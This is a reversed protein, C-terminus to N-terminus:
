RVTSSSEFVFVRAGLRVRAGPQLRRSRRPPLETWASEDPGSVYTGNRSGTDVVVVDWGSVRVEAHVRSVSGAPDEVVLPWLEGSRVRDDVEPMRGVLYGGDVVHAAGDDFMLLGLAPRPGVVLGGAREDITAGCQRCSPSRPDNLHDNECRYGRIRAGGGRGPDPVAEPVPTPAQRVDPVATTLGASRFLLGPMTSTAEAPSPGARRGADRGQTAPTPGDASPTHGTPTPTASRQGAPAHTVPTQGAITPNAPPQNASTPTTTSPAAAPHAEGRRPGPQPRPPLPRDAPEADVQRNARPGAAFLSEAAAPPQAPGGVASDAPLDARPAGDATPGAASAPAAFFDTGADHGPGADAWRDARPSRDVTRGTAQAPAASIDAGADPGPDVDAWWDAGPADDAMPDAAQSPPAFLDAGADVGQDGGSWRHTGGPSVDAGWLDTSAADRRGGSWLDADRRGMGDGPADAHDGPFRAGFPDAGFASWGSDGGSGDQHRDAARPEVAWPDSGHEDVAASPPAGTRPRRTRQDARQAGREAAPGFREGLLAAGRDHENDARRDAARDAPHGAAPDAPGDVAHDAARDAVGDAVHGVAPGAPGDVAHGAMRDAAGVALHGAAPGAPGDVAHGAVRDAARDALHGAAPDAPGDVVHDAMRDAAGDALHSAPDPPHRATPDVTRDAPHDTTSSAGTDRPTPAITDLWAVDDVDAAADHDVADYDAADAPDVGPREAAPPPPDAPDAEGFFSHRGADGELLDAAVDPAGNRGVEREADPGDDDGVPVEPAHNSGNGGGARQAPLGHSWSSQDDLPDAAAEGAAFWEHGALGAGEEADREDLDSARPHLVVAAGPVVGARLDHVNAADARVRAGDVSLVVPSRPVPFLRDTGIAAHAGSLTLGGPGDIRAEVAGVLFVALQDGAAAVTGFRLRPGPATPGSMWTALRRALTRGPDPGSVSACLALFERLPEPEACRAVCVIGPFRGVVDEGAGVVARLGDFAVIEGPASTTVPM